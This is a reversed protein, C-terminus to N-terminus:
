KQPNTPKHQNLKLPNRQVSQVPANTIAFVIGCVKMLHNNSSKSRKPVTDFKAPKISRYANGVIEVFIPWIPRSILDTVVERLPKRATDPPPIVTEGTVLAQLDEQIGASSTKSFRSHNSM